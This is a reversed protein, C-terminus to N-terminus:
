GRKKWKEDARKIARVLQKVDTDWVSNYLTGIQIKQRLLSELPQANADIKVPFIFQGERREQRELALKVEKYVYADRRDNLAHSLLVVFYDIDRTVVDELVKDWSDGVRLGDRDIWPNLGEESLSQRLRQAREEDENVYSIFVSPGKPLRRPPLRDKQHSGEPHREDWRRHLKQIFEDLRMHFWKLTKYGHEYFLVSEKLRQKFIEGQAEPVPAQDLAYSNYLQSLGQSLELIHLLIRLYYNGFGFGLFLLSKEQFLNQLDKPLGPNERAVTVLFKLLNNETLVLSSPDDFSGYLRYILPEQVTGLDGLNATRNGMVSYSKVQPKKGQQRLFHELTNDHRSTVFLPFPLAALSEFVPDQRHPLTQADQQYFNGVVTRLDAPTKRNEFIQAVLRLTNPDEIPIEEETMGLRTLLVRSLATALNRRNGHEDVTDLALGLQPICCEQEISELLGDWDEKSLGDGDEKSLTSNM